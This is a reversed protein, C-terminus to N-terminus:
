DNNEGDKKETEIKFHKSLNMGIVFIYNLEDASINWGKQSGASILHRSILEELSKYYNKKYQELKEQILPVLSVVDDASMKLGRLKSRFPTAHKEQQQINLLFQALIGILFTSKRVDDTFFSSFKEFFFNTKKEFEEKSNIAFEQFFQQDMQDEKSRNRLLNLKDLFNLLMFSQIPFYYSKWKHQEEKNVFAKRIYSVATKVIYDYDIQSGNFIKQAMDLFGKYKRLKGDAREIPFFNKVIGFNFLFRRKGDNDLDQFCFMDDVIKKAAFLQQLRSPFVEEVSSLIRFVGKQPKDYFVLNFNVINDFEKILSFVENESNTLREENNGENNIKTNRNYSEVIEEFVLDRGNENMIKPILHYKLGYFNFTLDQEMMKIGMEVDLACDLCVPYNKWTNSHDFGSTVMGMNKVTYCALSTFYGFVESKNNNCVSCIKRKCLSYQKYTKSYKYDISSEETIFKSFFGYDGIFKEIDGDKFIVSLVLGKKNLERQKAELDKSIVDERKELLESIKKLFDKEEDKLFEKTFCDKFWKLIKQNFTGSIKKAVKATPTKDSGRSSGRKYILKSKLDERNDRLDIGKYEWTENETKELEILFLHPNKGGDFSDELWIDFSSIDPNLSKKYKGLEAIANIM